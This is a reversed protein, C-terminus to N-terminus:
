DMLENDECAVERKEPSNTSFINQFIFIKNTADQFKFAALM